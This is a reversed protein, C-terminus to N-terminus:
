EGLYAAKVKPNSRIEKPTGEAIKEGFDLVLIEDCISMVLNVNHEVLLICVGRKVLTRLLEALNKIETDNLGGAPEDL